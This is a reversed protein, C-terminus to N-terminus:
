WNPLDTRLPKLNMKEGQNMEYQAPRRLDNCKLMKVYDSESAHEKVLCEGILRHERFGRDNFKENSYYDCCFSGEQCHKDEYCRTAGAYYEWTKNTVGGVRGNQCRGEFCLSFLGENGPYSQCDDDNNCLSGAAGNSCRGISGIRDCRRKGNVLPLCDADVGCSSGTQGSFCFGERNPSPGGDVRTIHTCSGNIPQGCVGPWLQESRDREVLPNEAKKPNVRGGTDPCQEAAKAQCSAPDKICEDEAANCTGWRCAGSLCDGDVECERGNAGDSCQNRVCISKGNATRVCDGDNGCTAGQQGSQCLNNRWPQWGGDSRRKCRCVGKFCQRGDCDTDSGCSQGFSGDQCTGNRCVSFGGVLKQCDSANGCSAGKLGDYCTGGRCVGKGNVISACDYGSGCSGGKAGSWYTNHRYPSPGGDVRSRGNPCVGGPCVTNALAGMAVEKGNVSGQYKCVSIAGAANSKAGWTPTSLRIGTIWKNTSLIDTVAKPYGRYATGSATHGSANQWAGAVQIQMKMRGGSGWAGFTDTTEFLGVAFAGARPLAWTVESWQNDRVRSFKKSTCGVYTNPCHGGPCLAKGLTLLAKQKGETASQGNCVSISGSAEPKAGWTPTSLRIGTISETTTLTDSVPAQDARYATGSATHGAADKWAGNVKIQMKLRNGSGWAGFASTAEAMSVYFSGSLPTTWNVESWQNDRVGVFSQSYCSEKPAPCTVPELHEPVGTPGGELCGLCGTKALYCTDAIKYTFGKKQHGGSEVCNPKCSPFDEYRSDGDSALATHILCLLLCFMATIFRSM